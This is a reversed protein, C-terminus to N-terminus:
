GEDRIQAIVASNVKELDQQAFSVQVIMLLAFILLIQKM